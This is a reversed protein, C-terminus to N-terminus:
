KFYQLCYKTEQHHGLHEKWASLEQGAPPQCEQPINGNGESITGSVSTTNKYGVSYFILMTVLIIVIAWLIFKGSEMRVEEARIEM